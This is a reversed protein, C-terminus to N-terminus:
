FKYVFANARHKSKAIPRAPRVPHIKLFNHSFKGGATIVSETQQPRLPTEAM